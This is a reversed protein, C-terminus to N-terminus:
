KYGLAKKARAVLSPSVNVTKEILVQVKEGALPVIAIRRKKASALFAPDKVMAAFASRVAALRAKPVGPPMTPARGTELPSAIFELLERDGASKALSAVLPVSPDLDPSRVLAFEVLPLMYKSDIWEQSTSKWSIWGSTLGMVEGREMALRGAASGAYGSIIKFKTGLVSNMIAPLIFTPSGKGTSSVTMQRKRVDNLTKIGHDARVMMVHNQTALRGLYNFKRVDLKFGKGRLLQFVPLVPSHIGFYTGDKPAVNFLYNAMRLSGGGTMFQPIIKPNGPIHRGLHKSVTRAYRDYGGGPGFGVLFNMVKGQYFKAVSQAHASGSTWGAIIVGLGALLLVTQKRLM